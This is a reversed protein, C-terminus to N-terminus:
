ASQGLAFLEKIAAMSFVKTYVLECRGSKFQVYAGVPLKAIPTVRSPLIEAIGTYAVSWSARWSRYSIGEPAFVLRYRSLWVITAAEVALILLVPAVLGKSASQSWGFRAFALALPIFPLGFLGLWVVYSSIDARYVRTSQM